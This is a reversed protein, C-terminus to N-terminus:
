LKQTLLLEIAKDREEDSVFATGGGPLMIPMMEYPGHLSRALISSHPGRALENGDRRTDERVAEIWRDMNPDALSVPLHIPKLDQSM